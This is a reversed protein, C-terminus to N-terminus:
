SERHTLIRSADPNAIGRIAAAAVSKTVPRAARFLCYPGKAYHESPSMRPGNQTAARSAAGSRVLRVVTGRWRLHM